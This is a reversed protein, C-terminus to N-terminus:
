PRKRSPVLPLLLTYIAYSAFLLYIPIIPARYRQGGVLLGASTLAAFGLIFLLVYMLIPRLQKEKRFSLIIGCLSAALTAWDIPHIGKFFLGAKLLCREITEIPHSLIYHIARKKLLKSKESLSVDAYTFYDPEVFQDILTSAYFAAKTDPNNAIYLNQGSYNELLVFEGHLSYNHWGNAGLLSVPVLFVLVSRFAVQKQRWFILWIIGVLPFVYLLHPRFLLSLSLALVLLFLWKTKQSDKLFRLSAYTVALIFTVFLTETLLYQPGNLLLVPHIAYLGACILGIAPRGFLRQALVYLFVGNAGYLIYQFVMFAKESGLAAFPVLILSFLPPVIIDEKRVNNIMGNGHVMNEAINFYLQGDPTIRMLPQGTLHLYTFLVGEIMLFIAMCIFFPKRILPFM